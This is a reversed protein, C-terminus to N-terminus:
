RIKEIFQMPPCINYASNCEACYINISLGGTPGELFSTSYCCPMVHLGYFLRQERTPPITKSDVDFSKILDVCGTKNGSPISLCEVRIECNECPHDSTKKKGQIREKLKQLLTRM